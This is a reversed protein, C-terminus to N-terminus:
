ICYVYIYIKVNKSYIIISYNYLFSRCKVHKHIKITYMFIFIPIYRFISQEPLNWSRKVWPPFQCFDWIFSNAQKASPALFTERGQNDRSCLHSLSISHCRKTFICIYLYALYIYTSVNECQRNLSAVTWFIKKDISNILMILQATKKLNSEATFVWITNLKVHNELKKLRTIILIQFQFKWKFNVVCTQEM